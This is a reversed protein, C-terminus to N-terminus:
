RDYRRDVPLPVGVVLLCTLDSNMSTLIRYVIVIMFSSKQKDELFVIKTFLFVEAKETGYRMSLHESKPVGSGMEQKTGGSGNPMFFDVGLTPM